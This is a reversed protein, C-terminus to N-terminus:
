MAGPLEGGAPLGQMLRLFLLSIPAFIGWEKYSPLIGILFSPICMILISWFFATRRGYIDGIHGFILGGLPRSLFGIANLILTCLTAIFPSATDFFYLSIVPTWYIFLFVDYWELISGLITAVIVSNQTRKSLHLM